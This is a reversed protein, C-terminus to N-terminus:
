NEVYPSQLYDGPTTQSPQVGAALEMIAQDPAYIRSPRPLVVNIRGYSGTKDGSIESTVPLGTILTIISGALRQVEDSTIPSKMLKAAAAEVGKVRMVTKANPQTALSILRALANKAKEGGSHIRPVLEGVAKKLSDIQETTMKADLLSDAARRVSQSLFRGASKVRAAADVPGVGVGSVLSQETHQMRSTAGDLSAQPGQRHADTSLMSIREAIRYEVDSAKQLDGLEDLVGFAPVSYDVNVAMPVGAQWVPQKALVALPEMGRVSFFVTFFLPMLCRSIMVVSGPHM